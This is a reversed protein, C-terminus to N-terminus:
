VLSYVAILFAFERHDQLASEENDVSYFLAWDGVVARGERGLNHAEEATAGDKLCNFQIVVM